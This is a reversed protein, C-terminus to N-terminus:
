QWKRRSGFAIMTSRDRGAVFFAPSLRGTLPYIEAVATTGGPTPM